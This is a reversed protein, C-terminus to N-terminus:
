RGIGMNNMMCCANDAMDMVRNGARKFNKRTRRDLQPLVMMGVVAGIAVGVTVGSAFKISM